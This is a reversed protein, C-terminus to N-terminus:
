ILHDVSFMVAYLIANPVAELRSWIDGGLWHGLIEQFVLFVFSFMFGYGFMYLSLEYHSVSYYYPIFYVLSTLVGVQRDVCIYHTMYVLYFFTQLKWGDETSFQFLMPFWISIGYYVFPMGITHMLCNWRSLHAERYYQLGKRGTYFGLNSFIFTINYGIIVPLLLINFLTSLVM